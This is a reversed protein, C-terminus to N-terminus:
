DFSEKVFRLWQLRAFNLFSAPAKAFEKETKYRGYAKFYEEQSGKYGPLKELDVDKETVPLETKEPNETAYPSWMSGRLAYKITDEYMILKMDAPSVDGRCALKYIVTTEAIGNKDLDTISTSGKIFEATVDVPCKEVIDNLKWLIKYGTDKKRYQCAFLRITQEDENGNWTIDTASLLLLNEGQKDNWKWAEIFKGRFKIAKPFDTAKIKESSLAQSFLAPWYLLLSVLLILKSMSLLQM